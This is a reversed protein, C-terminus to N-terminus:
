SAAGCAGLTKEVLALVDAVTVCRMLEDDGLIVAFEDEAAMAIEVSDLSDAGLDAIIKTELSVAETGFQERVIYLMREENTRV